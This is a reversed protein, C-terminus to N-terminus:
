DKFNNKPCTEILEKIWLNFVKPIRRIKKNSMADYQISMGRMYSMVCMKEVEKKNFTREM